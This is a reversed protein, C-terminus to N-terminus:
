IFAQVAITSAAATAIANVTGKPVKEDFTATGGPYLPIGSNLVAANDFALFVTANSINVIALGKRNADAGLVATSSTGVSVSAPASGTIPAGSEIADLVLQLTEETAPNIIDGNADLIPSPYQGSYHDSM